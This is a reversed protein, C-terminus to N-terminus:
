EVTVAMVDTYRGSNVPMAVFAGNDNLVRMLIFLPRIKDAGGGGFYSQQFM